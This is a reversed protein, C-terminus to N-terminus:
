RRVLAGTQRAMGDAILRRMDADAEAHSRYRTVGGRGYLLVSGSAARTFRVEEATPWHLVPVPEVRKGVIRM